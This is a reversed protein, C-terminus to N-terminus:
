SKLGINKEVKKTKKKPLNKLEKEIKFESNPLKLGLNPDVKNRYFYNIEYPKYIQCRVEEWGM